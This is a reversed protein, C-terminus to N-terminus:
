FEKKEEGDDVDDLDCLTVRHSHRVKLYEAVNADNAPAAGSEYASIVFDHEGKANAARLDAFPRARVRAVAFPSHSLPSREIAVRAIRRIM